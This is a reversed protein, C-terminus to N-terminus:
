EPGEGEIESLDFKAHTPLKPDTQPAQLGIKKDTNILIPGSLNLTTQEPKGPPISVTVMVALQRINEVQLIKQEQDSIRVEYDDLFAFPDAVLFGLAEDETSQLLMFASEEEGLQLLTFEHHREFGILGRPFNVLRDPTVEVEGLRSKVTIKEAKEEM